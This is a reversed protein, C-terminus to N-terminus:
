LPDEVRFRPQEGMVQHQAAVRGMLGIEALQGGQEALALGGLLGEGVGEVGSQRGHLGLEAAVQRAALEGGEFECQAGGELCRRVKTM